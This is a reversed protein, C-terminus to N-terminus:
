EILWSGIIGHDPWVWPIDPQGNDADQQRLGCRYPLQILQISSCLTTLTWLLYDVYTLLYTLLFIESASIYLHWLAVHGLWVYIDESKLLTKFHKYSIDLTQLGRPLSNCIRPYTKMYITSWTKYSWQDNPWRKSKATIKQTTSASCAYKLLNPSM